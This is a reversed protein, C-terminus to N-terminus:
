WKVDPLKVNLMNTGVKVKKTRKLPTGLLGLNIDPCGVLGVKRKKKSRKRGKQAFEEIIEVTKELKRGVPERKAFKARARAKGREKVQKKIEEYYGEAEAKRVAERQERAEEGAVGKLIRTKTVGIEGKVRTRVAGGLDRFFGDKQPDFPKCDLINPVGDKDYDSFPSYSLALQINDLKRKKM